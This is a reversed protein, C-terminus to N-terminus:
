FKWVRKNPDWLSVLGGVEWIITSMRPRLWSSFGPWNQSPFFVLVQKVASCTERSSVSKTLFLYRVELSLVSSARSSPIDSCCTVVLTSVELSLVKHWTLIHNWFLLVLHFFNSFTLLSSAAFIMFFLSLSPLNEFYIRKGFQNQVWCIRNM